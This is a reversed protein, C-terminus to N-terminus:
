AAAPASEDNAAASPLLQQLERRKAITKALLDAHEARMERSFGDPTRRLCAAM